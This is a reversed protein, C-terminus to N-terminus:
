GFDKLIAYFYAVDQFLNFMRHTVDLTDYFPPNYITMCSKLEIIETTEIPNVVLCLLM